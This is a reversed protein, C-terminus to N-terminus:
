VSRIGNKFKDLALTKRLKVFYKVLDSQTVIGILKKNEIVPLKKINNRQMVSDSYYISSGPSISILPSSMIEKVATKSSELNSATGRYAMDRETVIGLPKKGNVVILCGIKNKRMVKAAKQMTDDMDCTKVKRVMIKSVTDVMFGFLKELLKFLYRNESV